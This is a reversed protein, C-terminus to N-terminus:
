PNPTTPPFFLCKSGPYRGPYPDPLVLGPDNLVCVALRSKAEHGNPKQLKTATVKLTFSIGM